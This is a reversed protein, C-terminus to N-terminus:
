GKTSPLQSHSHDSDKDNAEKRECSRRKREWEERVGRHHLPQTTDRPGQIVSRTGRKVFRSTCLPGLSPLYRKVAKVLDTSQATCKADTDQKNGGDKLLRGVAGIMAEAGFQVRFGIHGAVQDVAISEIFKMPTALLAIPRLKTKTGDSNKQEREHFLVRSPRPCGTQSSSLTHLIRSLLTYSAVQRRGKRSNRHWTKSKDLGPSERM